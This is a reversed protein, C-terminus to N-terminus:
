NDLLYCDIYDAILLIVDVRTLYYCETNIYIHYM